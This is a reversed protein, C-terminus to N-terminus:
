HATKTERSALWAEVDEVRFGVAQPGLKIPAPFDGSRRWRDISSLSAGLVDRLEKRRLVAKRVTQAREHGVTSRLSDNM